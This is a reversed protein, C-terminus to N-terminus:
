WWQVLLMDFVKLDFIKFTATRVNCVFYLTLYSIWGDCVCRADGICYDLSACNYSFSFYGQYESLTTPFSEKLCAYGVLSGCYGRRERDRMTVSFNYGLM